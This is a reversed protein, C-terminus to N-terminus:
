SYKVKTNPPINNSVYADVFAYKEYLQYISLICAARFAGTTTGFATAVLTGLAGGIPGGITGGLIPAFKAVAQALEKLEMIELLNM